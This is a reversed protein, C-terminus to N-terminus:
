GREVAQTDSAKALRAVRATIHINHIHTYKYKHVVTFSYLNLNM